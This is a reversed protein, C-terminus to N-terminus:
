ETAQPEWVRASRRQDAKERSGAESVAKSQKLGRGRQKLARFVEEVRYKAAPNGRLSLRDLQPLIDKEKLVRM